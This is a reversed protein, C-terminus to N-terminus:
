QWEVASQGADARSQQAVAAVLPMLAQKAVGCGPPHLQAAGSAARTTGRRELARFTECRKGARSSPISRRLGLPAGGPRSQGPVLAPLVGALGLRSPHAQEANATEM